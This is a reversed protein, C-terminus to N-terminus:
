PKPFIRALINFLGVHRALGYNGIFRFGQVRRRFYQQPVGPVHGHTIHGANWYM